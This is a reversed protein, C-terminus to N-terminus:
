QTALARSINMMGPVLTVAFFGPFLCVVLPFILRTSVTAAIEEARQMRRDRFDEAYIRLTGAVGTGLRSSHSILSVLGNIEQLGTRQALNRLAVNRDIGARVEANVQALEAALEPHSAPMQEVVRELAANLGLGAETCTVLLDLADPLGAMLKAQRSAARNALAYDPIRSGFFAAIFYLTFQSLPQIRSDLYVLGFHVLVPAVVVGLLKLGYLVGLAGPGRFGAQILQRRPGSRDSEKSPEFLSWLRSPRDEGRVPNAAIAQPAPEDRLARLRRRMPDLLATLSLYAAWLLAVAAVAVALMFLVM